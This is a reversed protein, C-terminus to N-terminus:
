KWGLSVVKVGRGRPATVPEGGPHTPCIYFVYKHVANTRAVKDIDAELKRNNRPDVSAFTEAAIQGDTSEVDTGSDTGLNLRFAEVEPYRDM